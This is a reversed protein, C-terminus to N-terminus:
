KHTSARSDTGKASLPEAEAEGIPPAPLFLTSLYLVIGVAVLSCGGLLFISFSVPHAWPLTFAQVMLGCSVLVGASSQRRERSWRIPNIWVSRGSLSM